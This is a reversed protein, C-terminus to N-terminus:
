DEGNNYLLDSLWTALERNDLLVQTLATATTSVIREEKDEDEIRYAWHIAHLIEHLLTDVLKTVCAFEPQLRICMECASFEGFRQNANAWHSSEVIVSVQYPGVRVTKPPYTDETLTNM